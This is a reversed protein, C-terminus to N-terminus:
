SVYKPLIFLYKLTMIELHLLSKVLSHLFEDAIYFTRSINDKLAKHNIYTFEAAVRANIVPNDLEQSFKDM